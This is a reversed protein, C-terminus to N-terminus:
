EDAPEAAPPPADAVGLLLLAKGAAELAELAQRKELRLAQMQRPWLPRTKSLRKAVSYDHTKKLDELLAVKAADMRLRLVNYAAEKARFDEVAERIVAGKLATARTAIRATLVDAKCRLAAVKGGATAPTDAGRIISEIEASVTALDKHLTEIESQLDSSSKKFLKM